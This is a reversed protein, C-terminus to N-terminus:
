VVEVQGVIGSVEYDTAMYRINGSDTIECHIRKLWYKVEYMGAPIPEDHENHPPRWTAEGIGHMTIIGDETFRVYEAQTEANCQDYLTDPLAGGGLQMRARHNEVNELSLRFTFRYDDQYPIWATLSGEFEEGSVIPSPLTHNVYYPVDHSGGGWTLVINLEKGEEPLPEGESTWTEYGGAEVAIDMDIDPLMNDIEYYGSEDSYAHYIKTKTTDYDQYVTVYAGVVPEGTDSDRIQGHLKTGGNGNGGGKGILWAALLAGGGIAGAILLGTLNSKGGNNEM